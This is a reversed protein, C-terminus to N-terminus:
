SWKPGGPKLASGYGAGSLASGHFIDKCLAHLHGTTRLLVPLGLLHGLFLLQADPLVVRGGGGGDAFLNAVVQIPSRLLFLPFCFKQSVYVFYRLLIHVRM